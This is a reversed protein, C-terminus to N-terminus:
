IEALKRIVHGAMILGAASPVFAVSAPISKGNETPVNEATHPLEDSWLVEVHSIGAHRLATRMARALPCTHTKGIDSIRFRTPDLKNGTGMCSLVPIGQAHSASIIGLKGSVTDIADVVYDPRAAAILAEASVGDVFVAQTNIQVYPSIDKARAAAVDVKKMGVTSGLAFLQRNRNSESVTDFDVLTLKGVGSRVLAECVYSGVGGLGFLMVHSNKLKELAAEGLLAATRSFCEEAM